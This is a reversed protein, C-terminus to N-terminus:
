NEESFVTPVVNAVVTDTVAEVQDCDQRNRIKSSDVRKRGKSSM